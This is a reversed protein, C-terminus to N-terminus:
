GQPSPEQFEVANLLRTVRDGLERRGFPKQLFASREDRLASPSEGNAYGSIYLVRLSPLLALLQEALQRGNMGPMVMDTVLLDVNLASDQAAQLAETPRNFVLVEHGFSELMEVLLDSLEEQDECVLIRAKVNKRQLLKVPLKADATVAGAHSPFCVEFVSGQGLESRVGIHGGSQVVIGSVSALGLGTGQGIPKTSYFPEFISEMTEEDMGRGNDEVEILTDRGPLAGPPRQIYDHHATCRGTRIVIRGAGELADRANVVLNVIVQEFQGPDVQIPAVDQELELALEIEERVLRRLMGHLSQIVENPYVLQPELVQQRSYALLQQTLDAARHSVELVEQVRARDDAVSEPLSGLLLECDGIVVTLYNNFDHALGGALRGIAELRQSERLRNELLVQKAMGEHLQSTRQEVREELTERAEVLESTRLAVMSELERARSRTARARAEFAGVVLMTLAMAVLGRFWMTEHFWPELYFELSAAEESWVGDRNSALVRFTYHGHPIHTYVAAHGGEGDIWTDDYGELRYRYRARESDIYTNATFEFVLNRDCPPIRVGNALEVREGDVSMSKIRVHPAPLPDKVLAPDFRVLGEQTPFWMVGDRMKWGACMGGGNGEFVDIGPGTSFVQPHVRELSGRAVALLDAYSVRSVARNGLLVLHGYDDELIRSIVNEGLGEETKINRLVDSEDLWYLGGGYSGAWISGDPGEYVARLDSAALDVGTKWQKVLTGDRFLGLGRRAGVWLDGSRSELLFLIFGLGLDQEILAPGPAEGPLLTLVGGANGVWVDGSAAELLATAKLQEPHSKAPALIMVQEGRWRQVEGGILGVLISGDRGLNMAQVTIDEQWPKWRGDFEYLGDRYTAALFEEQEGVGDKPIVLLLAGGLGWENPFGVLPSTRVRLLGLSTGVWISGEADKLIASVLMPPLEEGALVEILGEPEAVLLGGGALWLVGGRGLGTSGAGGRATRVVPLGEGGRWELATGGRAPDEALVAGDRMFDLSRYDGSYLKHCADLSAVFLGNKSALWLQGDEAEAMAGLDVAEEAVLNFRGDQLVGVGHDTGIWLLGRSDELLCGVGMAEDDSLVREIEGDRLAMLGENEMGIWLTGDQSACLSVVRNNGLVDQNAKSLPEFEIGDFRVVGGFTGVWLGGDQDLALSTVQGQPLGDNITWRDVQHSLPSVISEPAQPVLPVALALCSLFCALMM